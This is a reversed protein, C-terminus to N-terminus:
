EWWTPRNDCLHIDGAVCFPCKGCYITRTSPSETEPSRFGKWLLAPEVIEGSAEHGMIPHPPQGHGAGGDIGHIDSGCM